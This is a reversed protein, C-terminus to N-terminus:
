FNTLNNIFYPHLLTLCYVYTFAQHILNQKQNSPIPEQLDRILIRDIQSSFPKVPQFRCANLFCM